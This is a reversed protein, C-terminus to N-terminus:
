EGRIGFTGPWRHSTIPKIQAALKQGEVSRKMNLEKQESRPLSEIGRVATTETIPSENVGGTEKEEIDWFTRIFQRIKFSKTLRQISSVACVNSVRDDYKQLFEHGGIRILLGVIAQVIRGYKQLTSSQPTVRHIAMNRVQRVEQLQTCFTEREQESIGRERFIRKNCFCFHNTV